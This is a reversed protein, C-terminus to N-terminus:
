AVSLGESTGRVASLTGSFDRARPHPPRRQGPVSRLETPRPARSQSRGTLRSATDTVAHARIHRCRGQWSAAARRAQQGQQQRQRSARSRSPPKGGARARIPPPRNLSTRPVCPKGAEVVTSPWTALCWLRLEDLVETVDTDLSQERKSSLSDRWHHDIFADFAAAASPIATLRPRAPQVWCAPVEGAEGGAVDLGGGGGGLVEAVGAVGAVGEVAGAGVDAGLLLGASGAETM